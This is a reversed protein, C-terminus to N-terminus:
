FENWVTKHDIWDKSDVRQRLEETFDPNLEGESNFYEEIVERIIEKLEDVTLDSVKIIM